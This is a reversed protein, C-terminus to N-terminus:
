ETAPLNRYTPHTTSTSTTQYTSDFAASVKYAARKLRPNPTANAPYIESDRRIVVDFETNRLMFAARGKAWLGLGIISRASVGEGESAFVNHDLSIWQGDVTEITMPGLSVRGAKGFMGGRGLGEIQAKVRAGKRIVIQRDVVVDEEVSLYVTQGLVNFGSNINEFLLVPIYTGGPLTVSDASAYPSFMILVSIVLGYFRSRYDM